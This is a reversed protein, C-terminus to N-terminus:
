FRGGPGFRLQESSPPWLRFAFCLSVRSLTEREQIGRKNGWSGVARTTKDHKGEASAVRTITGGELMSTVTPSLMTRVHWTVWSWESSMTNVQDNLPCRISKSLSPSWKSLTPPTLMLTRGGGSVRLTPSSDWGSECLKVWFSIDIQEKVIKDLCRIEFLEPLEEERKCSLHLM